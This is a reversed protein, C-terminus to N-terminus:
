VFLRQPKIKLEEAIKEIGSRKNASKKMVEVNFPTVKSVTFKELFEM